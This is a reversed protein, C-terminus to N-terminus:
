PVPDLGGPNGPHCRSIRKIALWGGRVLGYKQIAQKAYESCSPYFRCTRPLLPSILKQYLTILFLALVRM